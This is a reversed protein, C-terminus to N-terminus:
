CDIHHVGSGRKRWQAPKVIETRCVCCVAGWGKSTQKKQPRPVVIGYRQCDRHNVIGTAERLIREGKKIRGLCRRCTGDEQARSKPVKQRASQAASEPRPYRPKM